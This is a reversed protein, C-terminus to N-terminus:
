SAQSPCLLIAELLGMKARLEELSDARLTVHGVKRLARPEKGYDHLHADDIALIAAADPVSGLLNYMVSHGILATSGLPLGLVARVHNEFQSTRAGEITYHGSNHVRPAFENALLGQDTDFLELALVGVYNLHEALSEAYRRAELDLDPTLGPAPALSQVLIGGRHTNEGVPYTRMEGSQSRCLIVSLERRFTVKEEAIVNAQGLSLYAAGAQDRSRVHAQGKGDYGFRRTKLICPGLDAFAQEAETESGVAVYRPTPIGLNQFLNKEDIRDQSARLAEASPFVPRTRSLRRLSDDPVNEFEFTVADALALEDLADLDDYALPIHNAAVRAPADIDPDVVTVEVGLPQASLALMRGLQGGGLIGLTKM